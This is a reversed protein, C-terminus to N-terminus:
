KERNTYKAFMIGVTFILTNVVVIILIAKIM